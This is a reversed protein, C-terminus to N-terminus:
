QTDTLVRRSILAALLAGITPGVWYDIHHEFVGSALAPGFSRAPNLAAGTLPGGVLIATALMMGIAFGHWGQPSRGSLATGYIVFMLFFTLTAEVAVASIASQGIAGTPLTLGYLVAAGQPLIMRHALGALGAGLLQSAIYVIADGAGIKKVSALAITVAPNIHCGSVHGITYVMITLTLGHALAIGLLAAESRAVQTWVTVSTTGFFVLAFTGILEAVWARRIDSM